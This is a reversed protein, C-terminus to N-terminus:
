RRLPQDQYSHGVRENEARVNDVETAAVRAAEDDPLLLVAKATLATRLSLRLGYWDSKTIMEKCAEVTALGAVAARWLAASQNELAVRHHGQSRLHEARIRPGVLAEALDGREWALDSRLRRIETEESPPRDRLQQELEDFRRLTLL